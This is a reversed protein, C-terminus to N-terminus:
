PCTASKGNRSKTFFVDVIELTGSTNIDFRALAETVVQGNKSKVFFVDVIEVSGSGNVDGILSRVNCDTDGILGTIAGALDMKYCKEDPLLGAAFTMELTAPSIMLATTPVYSTGGADSTISILAPASLVAPMDFDVQIKQIGGGRTEVTPGGPGNGAALPDLVIKLEGVGNAHTRISRWETITPSPPCPPPIQPDDTLLIFAMNTQDPAPLPCTRQIPNWPGYLWENNLGM